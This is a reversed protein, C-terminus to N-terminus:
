LYRWVVAFESIGPVLVEKVVDGFTAEDVEDHCVVCDSPLHM